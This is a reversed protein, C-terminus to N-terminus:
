KPVTLHLPLSGARLMMTRYEDPEDRFETDDPILAVPTGPNLPEAILNAERCFLGLTDAHFRDPNAEPLAVAAHLITATGIDLQLM